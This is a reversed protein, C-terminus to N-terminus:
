DVEENKEEKKKNIYKPRRAISGLPTVPLSNNTASTDTAPAAIQGDEVLTEDEESERLVKELLRSIESKM